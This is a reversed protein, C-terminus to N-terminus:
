RCRGDGRRRRPGRGGWGGVKMLTQITSNAPAFTTFSIGMVSLIGAGLQRGKFPLPIGTVQIAAPLGPPPPLGPQNWHQAVCM